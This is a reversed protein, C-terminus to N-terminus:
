HRQLEENLLVEKPRSNIIYGGFALSFVGILACFGALVSFATMYTGNIIYNYADGGVYVNTQFYSGNYYNTYKDHAESAFYFCAVFTVVSLIILFIGLKRM